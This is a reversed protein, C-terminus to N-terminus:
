ASWLFSHFSVVACVSRGFGSGLSRFWCWVDVLFISFRFWRALLVVYALALLGIGVGLALWSNPCVFGGRVRFSLHRFRCSLNSFVGDPASRCPYRAFLVFRPRGASVFDRRRVGRYVLLAAGWGAPGRVTVNSSSLEALENPGIPHNDPSQIKKLTRFEGM